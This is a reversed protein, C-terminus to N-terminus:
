NMRIPTLALSISSAGGSWAASINAGSGYTVAVEELTANSVNVNVSTNRTASATRTVGTISLTGDSGASSSARVNYVGARPTSVSVSASSAATFLFTVDSYVFWPYTADLDARYICPIARWQGVGGTAFLVFMYGNYLGTTPFATGYDGGGVGAALKPETVAGDAITATVVAGASLNGVADWGTGYDYYLVHPTLDTAMYFRGQIGPTGASSTPRAAFTGQGYMASRELGGVVAIFDRPVDASDTRAASPYLVGYRTSTQM